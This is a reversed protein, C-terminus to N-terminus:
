PRGFTSGHLAMGNSPEVRHLEVLSKTVLARLGVCKQWGINVPWCLLVQRIKPVCRENMGIRVWVVIVM